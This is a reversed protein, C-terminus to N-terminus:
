APGRTRQASLLKIQERLYRCPADDDTTAPWMLEVATGDLSFPLPAIRLVPRKRVIHEAVRRPVTAILASGELLTGLTLFSSVSCRVNRHKRTVDEVIGRLDGNYYGRKVRCYAIEVAKALEVIENMRSEEM